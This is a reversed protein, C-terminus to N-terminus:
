ATATTTAPCPCTPSTDGPTGLQTIRNGITNGAADKLKVIWEATAVRFLAFDTVGNGDYDGPVPLDALPTLYGPTGFQIIRSGINAGAANKLVPHDVRRHHHPVPRLRGRRQRRLRGYDPHRRASRPLRAASQPGTGITAGAGNKLRINWNPDTQQPPNLTYLGLDTVGNGDFDALPAGAAPQGLALKAVFVASNPANSLGGVGGSFGGAAMGNGVYTGALTVTGNAQVGLGYALDRAPGGVRTADQFAGAGSYRAVFVDQSGLSLYRFPANSLNSTFSGAVYVNGSSDRGIGGLGFLSGATGGLTLSTGLDQSWVRNGAADLKLLYQGLTGGPRTASVTGAGPDLDITGSFLGTAYVAQSGDVVLRGVTQYDTGGIQRAYVLDGTTTLKTLFGDASDVATLATTGAGPNFDVTGSFDGSTYVGTADAAIGFAQSTSPTSSDYQKAWQFDGTPSLRTIFVDRHGAAVTLTSVPTTAFTLSDGIEGIVYAHGTPAVAIAAGPSFQGASGAASKAYSTNGNSDIKWVFPDAGIATLTASGGGPGFLVPGIFFGTVYANGATDVAIGQGVDNATNGARVAYVLGGAPNYKAVFIDTSGSSSRLATGPGPDFDVTGSFGGTIYTNGAADVATARVGDTLLNGAGDNLVVSFPKQFDASLLRRGELHEVALPARRRTRPLAGRSLFPRQIM